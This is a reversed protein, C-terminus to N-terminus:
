FIYIRLPEYSTVLVYIRLDFKHGNILLPNTVYRSIVSLEDVNVDNIDDILQIGRGQAGSAPKVIWINKKSDHQKLKQYHEYFEGFEDPLIYTDPVFDFHQKGFREQMRVVNFCLRDKRTIEYSM